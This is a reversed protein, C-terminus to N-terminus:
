AVKWGALFQENAALMKGTNEAIRDIGAAMKKEPGYIGRGM